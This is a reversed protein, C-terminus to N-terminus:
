AKKEDQKEQQQQPLRSKIRYVQMRSIGTKKAIERITYQHSDLMKVVTEWILRYQAHKSDPGYKIVRGCYKGKSKAIEIGARQRERIKQRENEAVFGMLEILLDMMFDDILENGTNLKPLDDAILNVHMDRLKIVLKKLDSYNRSLRDLSAVELTDGERLYDMMERFAPRDLSKGSYKDSFIKDAKVEHARMLQRDLKQDQTSFRCYFDLAM